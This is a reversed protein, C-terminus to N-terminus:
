RPLAGAQASPVKLTSSSSRGGRRTVSRMRPHQSSPRNKFAADTPTALKSSNQVCHVEPRDREHMASPVRLAVPTLLTLPRAPRHVRPARPTLSTTSADTRAPPPSHSRRCESSLEVPSPRSPAPRRHPRKQSPAHLVHFTFIHALLAHASM